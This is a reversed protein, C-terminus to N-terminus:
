ADEREEKLRSRLATKLVKGYNNKPLSDVYRYVKPRKFRAIHQLCLNDLEQQTAQAGPQVVVFAVVEEGWEPHPRGVVSVESVAPHRLLVEEVERPYINSGGSIILDKSRDRLTLFGDHDFSGVDGTHLWGNRLTDASAEANRWYGQMVVDGRVLVEGIEQPPLRRDEPDTVAVEVASQAVGVSAVRAEWRPHERGAIHVRPLVTIAMPCEGQGYIQVFRQGMAELAQKIDELYMPGGGYIITKLGGLDPDNHRAWAVLRHVMTPAAFFAMGPWRRSLAFIEEPDFHGQEPIVQNAARLVHAFNYMGSGHSLPAAHLVCDGPAIQDVDTFYCLTMALINRHTIMVGKPQGTTGSTYFLWAVDDPSAPHPEANVGDHFLARYESSGVAVVRELGPVDDELPGVSAVLDPTVFCVRAEAHALIYAAEQPHLKANVPVAALGAWWAAYLIEIYEPCNSMVLAVRDGPKLGLRDRLGRALATVRGGLEAYTAVLRDGRSLAPNAPFTQAARLLLHAINV